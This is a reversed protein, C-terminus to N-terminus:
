AVRTKLGFAKTDLRGMITRYFNHILATLLLFVTNDIVPSLMSDFQEMVM